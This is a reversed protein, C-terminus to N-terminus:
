THIHVCESNAAKASGAPFKGVTTLRRKRFTLETFTRDEHTPGFGKIAVPAIEELSRVIREADAPSLVPEAKQLEQALRNQWSLQPAPSPPLTINRYTECLRWDVQGVQDLHNVVIGDLPGAVAVAYRLLPLDLWGCRLSGQWQNRPNGPDPLRATLEASFTPLPGEGHRTTYARTIGLVAVAEVNMMEVLEWAHHPTVTNWTTHPHFGRYEDLLVGQAGEFIATQYSPVTADINVGDPLAEKLDHAVTEANREWLDFGQLADEGIRDIFDQLELLARQRQLELKDRLISLDRLDSAFVADAGYKLWYARTEGIGQGCSGHKAAGRSLERLRNLLKLWPTTVLCRPHITVLDTPDHVGLETLHEAERALALPDIIVAPGLYTRPRAPTEALTGAGFQSFTHRRGDPLQVNHGAQSGGCYRVILDADYQRALYDVTAGKGEDGFGLGVTIIARKM